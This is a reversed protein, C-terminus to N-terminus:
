YLPACKKKDLVAIHFNATPMSDEKVQVFVIETSSTNIVYMPRDKTSRETVIRM